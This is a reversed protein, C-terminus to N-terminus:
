GVREFKNNLKDMMAKHTKMMSQMKFFLEKNNKDKLLEAKVQQMEANYARIEADTFAIHYFEHCRPCEFYIDQIDDSAMKRKITADFRKNCVRCKTRM